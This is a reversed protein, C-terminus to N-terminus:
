HVHSNYNNFTVDISLSKRLECATVYARFTTIDQFCPLIIANISCVVSAVNHGILYRWNRNGQIVKLTM